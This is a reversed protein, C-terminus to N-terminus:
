HQVDRPCAHPPGAILIRMPGREENPGTIEASLGQALVIDGQDTCVWPVAAAALPAKRILGLSREPVGRSNPRRAGSPTLLEPNTPNTKPRAICPLNPAKYTPIAGREDQVIRIAGNRESTQRLSPCWLHIRHVQQSAYRRRTAAMDRDHPDHSHTVWGSRAEGRDLLCVCAFSQWTQKADLGWTYM